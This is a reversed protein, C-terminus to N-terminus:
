HITESISQPAETSLASKPPADADSLKVIWDRFEAFRTRLRGLRVRLFGPKLNLISAAEATSYGEFRLKVVQRDLVGLRGLFNEVVDDFEPAATPDNSPQIPYIVEDVITDNLRVEITNSMSKASRWVRAVKRRLLTKALALLGDTSSVSFRGTRLGLWLIIQVSQVLDVSDLQSRLAKGILSRACRRMANRTLDMLRSMAHDDGSKVLDLLEDLPSNTEDM